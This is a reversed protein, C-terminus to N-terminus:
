HYLFYGDIVRIKPRRDRTVQEQYQREYGFTFWKRSGSLGGVFKPGWSELTSLEHGCQGVTKAKDRDRLREIVQKFFDRETGIPYPDESDSQQIRAIPKTLPPGKDCALL